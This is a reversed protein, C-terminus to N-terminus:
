KGKLSEELVENYAKEYIRRKESAPLENRGIKEIKNMDQSKIADIYQQKYKKTNSSKYSKLTDKTFKDIDEDSWGKDHLKKLVQNEKQVNNFKYANIYEDKRNKKFKNERAEVGGGMYTYYAKGVVPINRISRLDKIDTTGNKLGKIDNYTDDFLNSLPPLLSAIYKKIPNGKTMDNLLFKSAGLMSLIGDIAYEKYDKENLKLSDKIMNMIICSATFVTFMKVTNKIAKKHKGKKFERICDNRFMDFRKIVFTKLMYFIRGNGATLYNVPMESLSIPQVDSLESYLLYKINDDIRKNKLNELVFGAENGFIDHIYNYFEISTKEKPCCLAMRAKHQLKNLTSNIFTDKALTDIYSLLVGKFVKNVLNSTKSESLFEQAIKDVGINKITINSKNFLAKTLAITADKIGNKYYSLGLDDIQTLANEFHGLVAVYSLNKIDELIGHMGKQNFRAVLIKKILKEDKITIVGQNILKQTYAGVSNQIEENTLKVNEDNNLENELLKIEKQKTKIVEEKIDYSSQKFLKNKKHKLSNLIEQLKEKAEIDEIETDEKKEYYDLQAEISRISANTQTILDKKVDEENKDKLKILSKKKNSIKLRKDKIDSDQGGFFKKVQISENLGKVYDILANKSDKYYRNLNKDIINVKRSKTFSSSTNIANNHNRLATNIKDIKQEASLTGNPDIERLYKRILSNQSYEKLLETSNIVKRPYYNEIEGINIGVDIANQRLKKLVNQM